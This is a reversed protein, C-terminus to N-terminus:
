ERDLSFRICVRGQATRRSLRLCGVMFTRHSTRQKALPRFDKVANQEMVGWEGVADLCSGM